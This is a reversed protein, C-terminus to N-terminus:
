AQESQGAQEKGCFGYYLSKSPNGSGGRGGSCGQHKGTYGRTMGQEGGLRLRGYGLSTGKVEYTGIVWNQAQKESAVEEQREM